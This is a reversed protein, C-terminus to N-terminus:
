SLGSRGEREWYSVRPNILEVRAGDPIEETPETELTVKVEAGKGQPRGDRPLPKLFLSVVHLTVGQYDTAVQRTGNEDEFTKVEVPESILQKYGDLLTPINRLM